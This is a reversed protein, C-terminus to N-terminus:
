LDCCHGLTRCMRTKFPSPIVKGGKAADDQWHWDSELGPHHSSWSYLSHRISLPSPICHCPNIAAPSETVSGPYECSWKERGLFEGSDTSFNSDWNLLKGPTHHLPNMQPHSQFLSPKVCHNKRKEGRIGIMKGDKNPSLMLLNGLVAVTGTQIRPCFFLWKVGHVSPYKLINLILM